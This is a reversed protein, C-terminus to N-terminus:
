EADALLTLEDRLQNATENFIPTEPALELDVTPEEVRAMEFTPVERVERNTRSPM